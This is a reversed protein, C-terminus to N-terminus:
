PKAKTLLKNKMTYIKLLLKNSEISIYSHYNGTNQM